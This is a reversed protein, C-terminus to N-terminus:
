VHHSSTARQRDAHFNCWPPCQTASADTARAGDESRKKLFFGARLMQERQLRTSKWCITICGPCLSRRCRLKDGSYSVTAFFRMEYKQQDPTGVDRADFTELSIISFSTLFASNLLQEVKARFEDQSPGCSEDGSSCFARGPSSFTLTTFILIIASLASLSRTAVYNRQRSSAPSRDM